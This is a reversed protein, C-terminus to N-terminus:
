GPRIRRMFARVGRGFGLVAAQGWCRLRDWPTAPSFRSEERIVSEVRGLVKDITVSRDLRELADGKTYIRTPRGLPRDRWILRHVVLGAADSEFVVVDGPRLARPAVAHVEIRDGELMRPSMSGSAVRLTAHGAPGELVERLLPGLIGDVAVAGSDKMMEIFDSL